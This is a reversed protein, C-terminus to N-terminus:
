TNDTLDITLLEIAKNFKLQKAYDLATKGENDKINKDAGTKILMNVVDPRESLVAEILATSGSLDQHNMDIGRQILIAVSHAHGKDAAWFLATAGDNSLANINAGHKLLLNIIIM